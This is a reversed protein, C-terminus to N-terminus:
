FTYTDGYDNFLSYNKEYFAGIIKNKECEIVINEKFFALQGKRTARLIGLLIILFIIVIKRCITTAFRARCLM